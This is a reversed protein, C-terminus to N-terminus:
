TLTLTSSIRQM